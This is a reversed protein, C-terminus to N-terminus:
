WRMIECASNSGREEKLNQSQIVWDVVMTTSELRHHVKM